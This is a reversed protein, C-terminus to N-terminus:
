DFHMWVADALRGLRTGPSPMLKASEAASHIQLLLPSENQMGSPFITTAMLKRGSCHPWVPADFREAVRECRANSTSDGWSTTRPAFRAPGLWRQSRNTAAQRFRMLVAASSNCFFLDFGRM